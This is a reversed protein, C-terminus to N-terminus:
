EEVNVVALKGNRMQLYFKKRVSVTDTGKQRFGVDAIINGEYNGAREIYMVWNDTTRQFNAINSRDKVLSQANQSIDNYVLESEHGPECTYKEVAEICAQKNLPIGQTFNSYWAGAPAKPGTLFLCSGQADARCGVFDERMKNKLAELNRDDLNNYYAKVTAILQSESPVDYATNMMGNHEPSTVTDTQTKNNEYDHYGNVLNQTATAVRNLWSTGSQSTTDEGAASAASTPQSNTGASVTPNEAAPDDQSVQQPQSSVSSGPPAVNTGNPNQQSPQATVGANEANNPITAQWRKLVASAAAQRGQVESATLPIDNPNGITYPPIHGDNYTITDGHNSLCDIVPRSHLTLSGADCSNM